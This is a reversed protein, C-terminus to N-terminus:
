RMAALRIPAGDIRRAESAVFLALTMARVVFVAFVKNRM